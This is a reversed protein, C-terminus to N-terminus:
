NSRNKSFVFNVNQLLHSRSSMCRWLQLGQFPPPVRREYGGGGIQIAKEPRGPGPPTADNKLSFIKLFDQLQINKVRSVISTPVHARHRGGGTCAVANMINDTNCIMVLYIVFSFYFMHHEFSYVKLQLGYRWSLNCVSIVRQSGPPLWCFNLLCLLLSNSIATSIYQVLSYM